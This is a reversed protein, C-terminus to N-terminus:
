SKDLISEGEDPLSFKICGFYTWCVATANGHSSLQKPEGKLGSILFKHHKSLALLSVNKNSLQRGKIGKPGKSGKSSSM